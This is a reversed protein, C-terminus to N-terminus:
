HWHVRMCTCGLAPPYYSPAPAASRSPMAPAPAVLGGPRPRTVNYGRACQMHTHHPQPIAESDKGCGWAGHAMRVPMPGPVATEPAHARAAPVQAYHQAPATAPRAKSVHMLLVASIIRLQMRQMIMLM